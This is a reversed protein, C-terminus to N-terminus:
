YGAAPHGRALQGSWQGADRAVCCRSWRSGICGASRHRRRTADGGDHGSRAPAAAATVARRSASACLAQTAHAAAVVVQEAEALVSGHVDLAQWLGSPTAQLRAVPTGARWHVGPQALLARVLLAPQLWGGCAHWLAGDEAARLADDHLRAYDDPNAERSFDRWAEAETDGHSDGDAMANRPLQRVRDIPRELVGSAAWATGRLHPLHQALAQRTARVGARTLRSLPTDDPSV